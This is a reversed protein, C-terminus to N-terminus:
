KQMTDGHETDGPHEGHDVGGSPEGHVRNIPACGSIGLVCVTLLLLILKMNM